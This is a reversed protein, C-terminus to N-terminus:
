SVPRCPSRSAWWAIPGLRGTQPGLLRVPIKRIAHFVQNFALYRGVDSSHAFVCRPAGSVSRRHGDGSTLVLDTSSGTVAASLRDSSRSFGGSDSGGPLDAHVLELGGDGWTLEARCDGVQLARQAKQEVM